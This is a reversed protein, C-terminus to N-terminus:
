SLARRSSIVDQAHVWMSKMFFIEADAVVGEGGVVGIRAGAASLQQAEPSSRATVVARGDNFFAEIITSDAFIRMQVNEDEDNLLVQHPPSCIEKAPKPIPHAAGACTDGLVTVTANYSSSSAGAPPPHYELSIRSVTGSPLSSTFVEIFLVCASTPKTFNVTIDM